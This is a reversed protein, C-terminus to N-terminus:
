EIRHFLLFASALVQRGPNLNWGMKHETLPTAGMGVGVSWVSQFLSYLKPCL